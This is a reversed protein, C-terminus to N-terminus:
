GLRRVAIVNDTVAASQGEPGTATREFAECREVRWAEPPLALAELSAQPTPFEHHGPGLWSWPAMSAHEVVVALGGLTLADAARRLVAARDMAMPTHFYCALVLDFASAPFTVALDHQETAVRQALGATRASAEVRQLATGSVDVATVHWGLGALWLADGGHGAGLDLARGPTRTMTTVVEVLVANPSTGWLPDVDAYHREWFQESSQDAFHHKSAEHRHPSEPM